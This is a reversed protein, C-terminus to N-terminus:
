KDSHGLLTHLQRENLDFTQYGFAILDGYLDNLLTQASTPEYRRM